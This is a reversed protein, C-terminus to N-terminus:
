YSERYIVTGNQELWITGGNIILDMNNPATCMHDFEMKNRTPKNIYFGHRNITTYYIDIGCQQTLHAGEVRVEYPFEIERCSIKDLHKLFLRKKQIFDMKTKGKFIEKIQEISLQGVIPSNYHCLSVTNNTTPDKMLIVTLLKGNTDSVCNFNTTIVSYCEDAFKYQVPPQQQLWKLKLRNENVFGWKGQPLFEKLTSPPPIGKFTLETVIDDYQQTVITRSDILPLTDKNDDYEGDNSLKDIKYKDILKNEVAELTRKHIFQAM